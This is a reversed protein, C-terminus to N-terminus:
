RREYTSRASSPRFELTSLDDKTLSQILKERVSLAFSPSQFLVVHAEVSGNARLEHQGAVAM